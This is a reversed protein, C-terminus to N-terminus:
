STTASEDNLGSGGLREVAADFIKMGAADHVFDVWMVSKLLTSADSWTATKDLAITEDLWVTQWETRCSDKYAVLNYIMLLWFLVSQPLCRSTSQFNVRLETSFLDHLRSFPNAQYMRILFITSCYTLLGIRILRQMGDDTFSLHMLRYFISIMMENYTEPSFKGGTQYAMNSLCCFAHIDKWCNSLQQNLGDIFGGIQAEHPKHSCRILGRGAIFCDWNIDDRFLRPSTGQHLGLAIDARCVKVQLNNHMSLSRLGGKLSVMKLLGDVHTRVTTLDGEFEATMALNIVVMITSDDFVFANPDKEFANIRAQLHQLTQSHHFAALSKNKRSDRTKDLFARLGFMMSHICCIDSIMYPFWGREVAHVHLCVEYPYTGYKGLEIVNVLEQIVGPEIGPPLETGCFYGGVMKLRPLPRPSRSEESWGSNTKARKISQCPNIWSQLPGKKRQKWQAKAAHSMTEKRRDPKSDQGTKSDVFHIGAADLQGPANRTNLLSPRM